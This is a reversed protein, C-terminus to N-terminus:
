HLDLANHRLIQLSRICPHRLKMDSMVDDTQVWYEPLPTFLVSLIVKISDLWLRIGSPCTWFRGGRESDGGGGGLLSVIHPFTQQHNTYTHFRELPPQVRLKM